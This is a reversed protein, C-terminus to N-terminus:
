NVLQQKNRHPESTCISGRQWAGCGQCQYRQYTRTSARWVGRKHVHASGCNRCVVRSTLEFLGLNPHGTMWPRLVLYLEELSKVDDINYLRMEKWADKNGMLCENWLVWGPYKGHSRKKTTTLKDTLYQLKNSTFAGIKKAELMTDIIKVPSYPPFGELILRANIKKIDFKKGNHAIVIDCEDLFNWLAQLLAKDNSVPRVRSQDMYQVKREGLFKACFSMIFWDSEIQELSLNNNWLSWVKGLIPSTEIDLVGIRPAGEVRKAM